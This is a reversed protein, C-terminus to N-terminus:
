NVGQEIQRVKRGTHRTYDSLIRDAASVEGGGGGGNDAGVNPNKTLDMAAELLNGPAKKDEQKPAVALLARAADVTMETNLVLHEAMQQRGEAEPLARIAASRARDDAVAKAAAEAGIRAVEESSITMQDKEGGGLLGKVAEISTGIGDILGASLADPPNYCRAETAKIDDVSMGRHRSVAEVFMGYHYGVDREITERARDSLPEFMNGDVKEDGEHILTIKVGEQELASSLDVHMAVCGISGVGGSPTCIIRSAASAIYYAASYAKADVVALSPKVDRSAFIDNALESCGAAVGGNSNIDYIIATVDPDDLASRLQSRVFDYGTAFDASWNFRNVLLGHVPIVALGGSFAFPKKVVVSDFGYSSRLTELQIRRDHVREIDANIVARIEDRLNCRHPEIFAIM